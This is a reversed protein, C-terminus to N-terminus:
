DEGSIRTDNKEGEKEQTQSMNAKGNRRRRGVDKNQGGDRREREWVMVGEKFLHEM